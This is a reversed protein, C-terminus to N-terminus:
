KLPEVIGAALFDEQIAARGANAAPFGAYVSAQYIIEELEPVSAGNELAFRSHVKLEESQRLAILMAVTVLSRERRTLTPRNWVSLYANYLALDGMAGGFPQTEHFSALAQAMQPSMTEAVIALAKERDTRGIDQREVASASSPDPTTMPTSGKGSPKLHFAPRLRWRDPEANSVLNSSIPVAEIALRANDFWHPANGLPRSDRACSSLWAALDM